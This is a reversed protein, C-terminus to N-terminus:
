KCNYYGGRNICKTPVPSNRHYWYPSTYAMNAKIHMKIIEIEQPPPKSNYRYEFFCKSFEIRHELSNFAFDKNDAIEICDMTGKHSAIARVLAQERNEEKKALENVAKLKVVALFALYFIIVVGILVLSPRVYNKLSYLNYHRITSFLDNVTLSKKPEM